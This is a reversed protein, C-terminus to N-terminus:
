ASARHRAGIARRRARLEDTRMRLEAARASLEGLRRGRDLCSDRLDDIVSQLERLTDSHEGRPAEVTAVGAAEALARGSRVDDAVRAVPLLRRRQVVMGSESGPLDVPEGHLLWTGDGRRELSGERALQGLATSVTPRRAGILQGLVRHSLNLPVAVGEATVRGWREALHWLLAILRQDVRNLQSIAQTVTLREARESLRDILAANVEPYRALVAGVRRDLVALRVPSLANWRVSVRLLQSDPQLHWPRIVDGIGLLETSVTDGVIVERAIVGALLLLGVHGPDTDALRGADWEGVPLATQRVVLERRAGIRREGSLLQGLDPDLDLLASHAPAPV